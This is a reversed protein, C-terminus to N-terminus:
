GLELFVRSRAALAEPAQNSAAVAADASELAKDVRGVSLYAGSQDALTEADLKGGGILSLARDADEREHAPDNLVHWIRSRLAFTPGFKPDNAAADNASRLAERFQGGLLLERAQDAQRRAAARDVAR